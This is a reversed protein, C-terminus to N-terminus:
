YYRSFTSTRNSNYPSSFPMHLGRPTRLRKALSGGRRPRRREDTRPTANGPPTDNGTNSAASSSSSASSSSTGAVGPGEYGPFTPFFGGGVPTPAPSSPTPHVGSGGYPPTHAGSASM